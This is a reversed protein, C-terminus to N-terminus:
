HRHPAFGAAREETHIYLENEILFTRYDSPNTTYLTAYLVTDKSDTSNGWMLFIHHGKDIQVITHLSLNGTAVPLFMTNFIRKEYKDLISSKYPLMAPFLFMDDDCMEEFHNVYQSINLNPTKKFLWPRAVIIDSIRKCNDTYESM